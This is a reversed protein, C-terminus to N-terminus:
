WWGRWGGFGLGCGREGVSWGPGRRRWENVRVLGAGWGYRFDFALYAQLRLFFGPGIRGRFGDGRGVRIGMGGACGVRDCRWDNLRLCGLGSRLVV